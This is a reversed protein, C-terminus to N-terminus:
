CGQLSSPPSGQIRRRGKMMPLRLVAESLGERLDKAESARSPSSEIAQFVSVKLNQFTEKKLKGKHWHRGSHRCKWKTPANEFFCVHVHRNDTNEHMGAFWTMNYYSMDNEEFFKPLVKNLVTQADKWSKWHEKGYDEELSIVMDWIKSKTNKLKERITSKEERSLLGDKGFAGSSKEPNGAYDMYDSYHRGAKSGSDVYALYDGGSEGTNSSYWDRNKTKEGYYKVRVLVLPTKEGM